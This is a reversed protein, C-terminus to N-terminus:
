PKNATMMWCGIWAHIVSRYVTFFLCCNVAENKGNMPM